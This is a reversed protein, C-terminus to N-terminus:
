RISFSDSTLVEKDDLLLKVIIREGRFFHETDISISLREKLFKILDQENM